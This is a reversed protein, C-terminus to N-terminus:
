GALAKDLASRFPAPGPSGSGLLHRQGDPTTLVFTPTAGIGDSQAEADQQKAQEELASSGADAFLKSVNLGPVKAALRRAFDDTLWAQTEDGQNHYLLEVLQWAKNQKAAALLLQRGRESSPGVAGLLRAEVKVKGTRVYEQSLAPFTTLVYDKCIPCSTDIYETLTVRALPNGLVLGHQPIGAVAAINGDIVAPAAPKSKGGGSLVVSLVIAVAAVVAAGGLALILTRRPVPARRASPVRPKAVPKPPM